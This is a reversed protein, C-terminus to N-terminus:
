DCADSLEAKSRPSTAAAIVRSLTPAISEALAHAGTTLFSRHPISVMHVEVRGGLVAALGNRPGALRVSPMRQAEASVILTADARCSSFTHRRFADALASRRL